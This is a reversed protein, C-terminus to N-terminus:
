TTLVKTNLLLNKLLRRAHAADKKYEKLLLNLTAKKLGLTAKLFMYVSGEPNHIYQNPDSLVQPFLAEPDQPREQEARLNELLHRLSFDFNNEILHLTLRQLEDQTNGLNSPPEAPISGYLSVSPNNKSLERYLSLEQEEQCSFRQSSLVKLCKTFAFFAISLALLYYGYLSFSLTPNFEQAISSLFITFIGSVAVCSGIFKACTTKWHLNDRISRAYALTYPTSLKRAKKLTQTNVEKYNLGKNSRKSEIISTLLTNPRCQIRRPCLYLTMSAHTHTLVWTHKGLAVLDGVLGSYKVLEQAFQGVEKLSLRTDLKYRDLDLTITDELRANQSSRVSPPLSPSAQVTPPPVVPNQLALSPLSHSSLHNIYGQFNELLNQCCPNLSADKLAFSSPESKSGQISYNASNDKFRRAEKLLSDEKKNEIDEFFSFASAPPPVETNKRLLEQFSGPPTTEPSELQKAEVPPLASALSLDVLSPAVQLAPLQPASAVSPATFSVSVFSADVSSRRSHSPAPLAQSEKSLLIQSRPRNAKKAAPPTADEKEDEYYVEKALQKQSKLRQSLRKRRSPKEEKEKNTNEAKLLPHNEEFYISKAKSSETSFLQSLRERKSLRPKEQTESVLTSPTKSLLSGESKHFVGKVSAKFRERKSLKVSGKDPAPTVLIAPISLSPAQTLEPVSSATQDISPKSAPLANGESPKYSANLSPGGQTSDSAPSLTSGLM